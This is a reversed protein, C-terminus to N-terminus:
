FMNKLQAAEIQGHGFLSEWWLPHVNDPWEERDDKRVAHQLRCEEAVHKIAREGLSLKNSPRANLQSTPRREAPACVARGWGYAELWPDHHM